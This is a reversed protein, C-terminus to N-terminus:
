CTEPNHRIRCLRSLRHDSKWHGIIPEATARCRIFRNIARGVKTLIGAPSGNPIVITVGDVDNGCKYGRDASMKKPKYGGCLIKLHEIAPQLADGGYPNKAFSLAGLIIKRGKSIVM